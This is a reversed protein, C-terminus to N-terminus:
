KLKLILPRVSWNDSSFQNTANKKKGLYTIQLATGRPIQLGEMLGVLRKSGNSISRAPKEAEKEFFYACPLSVAVSPDNQDRVLRERIGDFYVRKTEGTVEPTWYDAMLDIPFETADTLEPVYGSNLDITSMPLSAARSPESLDKLVPISEQVAVNASTPQNKSM